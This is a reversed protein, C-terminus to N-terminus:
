WRHRPMREVGIISLSSNCNCYHTDETDATSFFHAFSLNLTVEISLLPPVMLKGQVEGCGSKLHFIATLQM